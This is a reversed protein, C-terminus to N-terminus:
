PAARCLSLADWPGEWECPRGVTRYVTLEQPVSLSVYINSGTFPDTGVPGKSHACLTGIGPTLHPSVKGYGDVELFDHRRGEKDYVYHAARWERVMDPTIHGYNNAILSMFTMFRTGSGGNVGLGYVPNRFASGHLSMPHSKDYVNQEDYSHDAEVNNTSVIYDGKEGMDGPRRVAYRAVGKLDAPISEVVFAERMDSVVWNAGKTCKGVVIKNGSKGRYEPRGITLLEVAKKATDSFAAAYWCGVQWDLGPRRYGSFPAELSPAGIDVSGGAYGSVVVGRDNLAHESGIEGASDTVTYGHAHEDSPQVIYAVLYEQPFFHQDESSCHIVRGDATGKALIVAGSCAAGGDDDIESRDRGNKPTIGPPTGKLGFYSNIVLIKEYHTMVEAYASKDLEAKAGLAIGAMLELAEPALAQYYQEQRRVYERVAQIGGQAQVVEAFWGEFVMRILDGAREGYQRGIEKWTGSLVGLYRPHSQYAPYGPFLYYYKLSRNSGTWAKPPPPCASTDQSAVFADVFVPVLMALTVSGLSLLVTTKKARM